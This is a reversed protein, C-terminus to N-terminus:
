LKESTEMCSGHLLTERLGKCILAKTGASLAMMAPLATFTVCIGNVDNAKGRQTLLLTRM